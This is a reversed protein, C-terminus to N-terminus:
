KEPLLGALWHVVNLTFQVHQGAKPHNMGMLRRRRGALQATFMAAEGFVAVRGTGYLLTAGQLMGGAGIYPTQPSFKWAEIPLVLNISSDLVMLPSAEVGEQIRFAQGTFAIVSDIEETADRGQTIPHRRLSAEQRRFPILSNSDPMMAYGNGMVIGFRAALKEAAGPFPMHDAILLLAGGQSVWAVLATIEEEDFASPTPLTWHGVNKKALANSIVLIDCDALAEATFRTALPKVVYGDKSLLEAFIQYRGESTHFNHHAEDICVIPGKAQQYAPRDVSLKFHKDGHQQAHAVGLCLLAIILFPRIM